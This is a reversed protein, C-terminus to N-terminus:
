SNDCVRLVKFKLFHTRSTHSACWKRSTYWDLLEGPSITRSHHPLVARPHYFDRQSRKHGSKVGEVPARSNVSKWLVQSCQLHSTMSLSGIRSFDSFSLSEFDLFYRVIWLCVKLVLAHWYWRLRWDFVYELWLCVGTLSMSWDFVHELWLCVGTL